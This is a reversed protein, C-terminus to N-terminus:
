MKSNRREGTTKEPPLEELFFSSLGFDIIKILDDKKNVLLYNEPKLDRHCIGNKHCYNIAQMM